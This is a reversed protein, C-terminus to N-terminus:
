NVFFARCGRGNILRLGRQRTCVHAARRVSARVRKPLRVDARHVSRLFFVTPSRTHACSHAHSARGNRSRIFPVRTRLWDVNIVASDGAFPFSEHASSFPKSFPSLPFPRHLRAQGTVLVKWRIEKQRATQSVLRPTM